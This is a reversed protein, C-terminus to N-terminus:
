GRSVVSTMTPVTSGGTYYSTTVPRSAQYNGYATGVTQLASSALSGYMQYKAADAQANAAAQANQSQIQTAMNGAQIKYAEQNWANQASINSIMVNAADQGTLGIQRRPFLQEGLALSQNANTRNRDQFALVSIGLNKAVDAEAGSGRALVPGADGFANLASGLGANLMEAQVQPIFRSDGKQDQEVLNEFAQEARVMGPHRALFDNDSRKYAARDGAIAQQNLIDFNIPIVKPPEPLSTGSGKSASEAAKKQDQGQKYQMGAGVATGVVGVGLAVWTNQPDCGEPAEARYAAVIRKAQELCLQFQEAKTM